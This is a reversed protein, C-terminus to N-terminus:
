GLPSPRRPRWRSHEHPTALLHFRDVAPDLIMGQDIVYYLLPDDPNPPLAKAAFVMAARASLSRAQEIDGSHIAAAWPLIM